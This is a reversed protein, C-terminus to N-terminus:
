STQLLTGQVSAFLAVLAKPEEVSVKGEYSM